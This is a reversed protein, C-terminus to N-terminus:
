PVQAGKSKAIFSLQGTHFSEHRIFHYFAKQRTTNWKAPVVHSPLQLMEDTQSRIHALALAHVETFKAMLEEFSPRLVMEEPTKGISFEELWPIDPCQGGTSGIVGSAEAWLLHGVLWYASNSERGDVVLRHHIADLPVKQLYFLNFKRSADLMEAIVESTTM